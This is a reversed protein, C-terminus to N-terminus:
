QQKLTLWNRLTWDQFWFHIHAAAEEALEKEKQELSDCAQQLTAGKKFGKLILYEASSLQDWNVNGNENRYVVYYYNKQGQPLDPFDNEIWHEVEEELLADRFRFLDYKLEFLTVWPQLFIKRNLMESLADEGPLQALDIPKLTGYTFTRDIALDVCAADYVVEKDEDTYEEEIWQPLRYGVHDVSWHNSPYKLLYPVAIFKNFGEYGFLRTVMPYVNQLIKLLRWWYQQNYIQIRQWPELTPSPCIFRSTESEITNGSPATPAISSDSQLPTTIISAFWEQRNKLEAPLTKDYSM